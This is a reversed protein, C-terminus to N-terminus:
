TLCLSSKCSVGLWISILFDVDYHPGLEIGWPQLVGDRRAKGKRDEKLELGMGLSRLIRIGAWNANKKTLTTPALIEALLTGVQQFLHSHPYVGWCSLAKEIYIFRNHKDGRESLLHDFCGELHFTPTRAPEIGYLDRSRPPIAVKHEDCLRKIFQRIAESVDLCPIWAKPYKRSARLNYAEVGERKQFGFTELFKEAFLKFKDAGLFDPTLGVIHLILEVRARDGDELSIGYHKCNAIIKERYRGHHFLQNLESVINDPTEMADTDLSGPGPHASPPLASSEPARENTREPMDRVDPPM